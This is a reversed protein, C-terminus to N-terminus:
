LLLHQLRGRSALLSVYVCAVPPSSSNQKKKGEKRSIPERNPDEKREFEADAEIKM